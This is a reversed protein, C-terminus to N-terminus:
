TRAATPAIAAPGSRRWRPGGKPTSTSAAAACRWRRLTRDVLADCADPRDGQVGHRRRHWRKGDGGLRGGVEVQTTAFEVGCRSRRRADLAMTPGLAPHRRREEAGVRARLPRGMRAEDRRYVITVEEAGLLRSQVAIDVATMGGGIVVVRRGVPLAAYRQRACGAIFEVAAVATPARRRRPRPRQRRRPRSRPLRRRLRASAACRSSRGLAQGYRMEIGGISSCGTSKRRRSIAAVKYAALGYENLGGPKPRAEFVTVDHGLMAAPARVCGRRDAASSPSAGAPRPVAHLDAIAARVPLRHRVAAARRDRGAQGRSNRVCASECLVETPCVRACMGGLM